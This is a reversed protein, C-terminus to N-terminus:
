KRRPPKDFLGVAPPRAPRDPSDAQDRDPRPRLEFLGPMQGASRDAADFLGPMEGPNRDPAEFLGSDSTPGGLLGGHGDQDRRDRKLRKRVM